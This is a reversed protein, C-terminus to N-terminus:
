KSNNSAALAVYVESLSGPPLDAFNDFEASVQTISADQHSRLSSVLSGLRSGMLVGALIGASVAIPVLPRALFLEALRRVAGRPRSVIRAMVRAAFFPPAQVPPLDGLLAWVRQLRMLEAACEGCAELHEAVERALGADLQGDMFASLRCQVQKCTM